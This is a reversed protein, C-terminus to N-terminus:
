CPRPLDKSDRFNNKKNTLDLGLDQLVLWREHCCKVFDGRSRIHYIRQGLDYGGELHRRPVRCHGERAKFAILARLFNDWKVERMSIAFGLQILVQRRDADHKVLYRRSRVQIAYYGLKYGDEVCTSPVHCHGERDRFSRLARILKGWKEADASFWFGLQVLMHVRDVRKKVFVGRSRVYRVMMGLRYGDEVHRFPVDCHAERRQFQQLSAFFEQWRAEDVSFIFGIDSLKSRRDADARIFLGCRVNSVVRGLPYGDEVHKVPVFVHGERCKFKCLTAFFANWGAATRAELYEAFPAPNGRGGHTLNLTQRRSSSMDQLPGGFSKIFCLERDQAWAFADIRNDFESSDLVRIAWDDPHQRLLAHFGINKLKRQAAYRHEVCRKRLADEPSTTLRVTQGVYRSGHLPHRRHSLFEWSYIVAHYAYGALASTRRLNCGRTPAGRASIPFRHIHFLRRM